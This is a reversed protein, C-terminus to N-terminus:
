DERQASAEVPVAVLGLADSARIRGQLANSAVVPVDLELLVRMARADDPTPRVRELLAEMALTRAEPDLGRLVNRLLDLRGAALIRELARRGPGAHEPDGGSPEFVLPRLPDLLLDYDDRLNGPVDVPVHGGLVARTRGELEGARWPDRWRVLWSDRPEDRSALPEVREPWRAALARAMARGADDLPRCEVRVAVAEAWEESVDLLLAVRWSVSGDQRVFVMRLADFGVEGSAREVPGGLRALERWEAFGREGQRPVIGALLDLTQVAPDDDPPGGPPFVGRGRGKDRVVLGVSWLILALAVLGLLTVAKWDRRPHPHKM